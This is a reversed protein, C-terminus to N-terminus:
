SVFAKQKARHEKKNRFVVCTMLVVYQYWVTCDIPVMQDGHQYGTGEMETWLVKYYACPVLIM